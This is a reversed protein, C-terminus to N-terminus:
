ELMKNYFKLLEEGIIKTDYYNEALLRANKGIRKTLEPSEFCSIISKYMEDAIDAIIINEMHKCHLGEAGQTTSIVTKGLAMGEVIKVRIGSGAFLPVIMVSHENMFKQADPVRGYVKCNESQYNFFRDPMNNGAIYLKIEPHTVIVKPFVNKLFWEIGECNPMWDMAGLHFLSFEKSETEQKRDNIINFGIPAICVPGEFGLSRFKVADDETIAVLADIKKLAKIEFNLLRSALIGLYWRKIVNKEERALRKWIRHEVNHARLVVKAASYQRIEDIYLTMTLFDLQVIDFKGNQLIEKLKKSFEVSRFRSIHYSENTFLNFFADKIKIKNDLNVTELEHTKVYATDIDKENTFHKSTNFALVKVEAGNDVLSNSLNYMAITGGDVPPYPLRPCLQLIKM